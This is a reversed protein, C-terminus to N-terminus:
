EFWEKPPTEGARIDKIESEKWYAEKRLVVFTTATNLIGGTLRTWSDTVHFGSLLARSLTDGDTGPTGDTTIIIREKKGNASM